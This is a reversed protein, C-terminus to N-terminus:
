ADVVISAARDLHAPFEFIGLCDLQELEGPDSRRDGRECRISFPPAHVAKASGRPFVFVRVRTYVVGVAVGCGGTPRLEVIGSRLM